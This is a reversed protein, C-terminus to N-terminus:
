HQITHSKKVLGSSLTNVTLAAKGITQAIRVMSAILYIAISSAITREVLLNLFYDPQTATGIRNINLDYRAEYGVKLPM